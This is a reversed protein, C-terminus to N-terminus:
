ANGGLARVVQQAVARPLAGSPVAPLEGGDLRAAGAIPAPVRGADLLVGLEDQLRERFSEADRPDLTGGDIVIRDIFVRTM